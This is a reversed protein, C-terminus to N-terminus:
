FYTQERVISNPTLRMYTERYETKYGLPISIQM